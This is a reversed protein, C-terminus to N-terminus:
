DSAAVIVHNCYQIILLFLDHHLHNGEMSVHARLIQPTIDTTWFSSTNRHVSNTLFISLVLKNSLLQISYVGKMRYRERPETISVEISFNRKRLTDSSQLEVNNYNVPASVSAATQGGGFLERELKVLFYSFELAM